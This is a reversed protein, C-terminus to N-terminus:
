LGVFGLIIIDKWARSLVLLLARCDWLLVKMVGLM